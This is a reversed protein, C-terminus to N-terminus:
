GELTKGWSGDAMKLTVSNGDVFLQARGQSINLRTVEWITSSPTFVKTLRRAISHAKKYKRALWPPYNELTMRMCLSNTWWSFAKQIKYVLMGQRNWRNGCLRLVTALLVMMSNSPRGQPQSHSWTPLLCPQGWVATILKHKKASYKARSKPMIRTERCLWRQSTTILKQDQLNRSSFIYTKCRPTTSTHTNEFNRMNYWKSIKSICYHCYHCSIELQNPVIKHYEMDCFNPGWDVLVLLVRLTYSYSKSFRCSRLAYRWRGWRVLLHSM